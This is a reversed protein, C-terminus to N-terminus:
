VAEAVSVLGGIVLWDVPVTGVGAAVAAVVAVVPVVALWGAVAVVALAAGAPFSFAIVSVFSM